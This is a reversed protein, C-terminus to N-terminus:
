GDYDVAEQRNIAAIPEPGTAPGVNCTKGDDPTCGYNNIM